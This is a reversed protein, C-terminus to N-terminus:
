QKAADATAWMVRLDPCKEFIRERFETLNKAGILRAPDDKYFHHVWEIQDVLVKCATNAYHESLPEAVADIYAVLISSKFTESPPTLNPM